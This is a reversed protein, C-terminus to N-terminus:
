DVRSKNCKKQTANFICVKICHARTYTSTAASKIRVLCDIKQHNFQVYSDNIMNRADKQPNQTNILNILPLILYSMLHERKSCAAEEIGINVLM